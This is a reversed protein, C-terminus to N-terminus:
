DFSIIRAGRMGYSTYVGSSEVAGGGCQTYVSQMKATDDQTAQYLHYYFIFKNVGCGYMMLLYRSDNYFISNKPLSLSFNAPLYGRAILLDEMTCTYTGKSFWGSQTAPGVCEDNTPGSTSGYGAKPLKGTDVYWLKMAKEIQDVAAIIRSNEARSQIGNYAAVSIAALIAVVVIVILLEVITFGKTMKNM